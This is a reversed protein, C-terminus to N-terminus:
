RRQVGDCDIGWVGNDLDNLEQACCQEGYDDDLCGYGVACDCDERCVDGLYGDARDGGCEDFGGDEDQDLGGGSGGGSSYCGGIPASAGIALSLVVWRFNGLLIQM